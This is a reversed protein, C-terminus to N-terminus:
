VNVLKTRVSQFHRDVLGQGNLVPILSKKARPIHAVAYIYENANSPLALQKM